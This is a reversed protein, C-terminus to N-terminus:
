KCNHTFPCKLLFGTPMQNLHAPCTSLISLSNNVFLPLGLGSHISQAFLYRASNPPSHLLLALSLTPHLRRSPHLRCHLSILSTLILFLDPILISAPRLTSIVCRTSMFVSIYRCLSISVRTINATNLQITQVSIGYAVAIVGVATRFFYHALGINFLTAEQLYVNDSAVCHRGPLISFYYNINGASMKM